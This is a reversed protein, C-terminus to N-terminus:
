SRSCAESAVVFLGCVTDDNCSKGAEQQRLKGYSNRREWSANPATKNAGAMLWPKAGDHLHDSWLFTCKFHPLFLILM